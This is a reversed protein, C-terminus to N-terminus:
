RLKLSDRLASEQRRMTKDPVDHISSNGHRNEVVISTVRYDNNAALDLYVQLDRQKVNTDSLILPSFGKAMMHKLENYVWNHASKLKGAQWDYVGNEDYMYMDAEIRFGRMAQELDKALTSKGSGSCGRVIYLNKAVKDEMWSNKSLFM